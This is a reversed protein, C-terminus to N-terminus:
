LGRSNKRAEYRSNVEDLLSSYNDLENNNLKDLLVEINKKKKVHNFIRRVSATISVANFALVGATALEGNTMFTGAILAGTLIAQGVAIKRINAKELNISSTSMDILKIRAEENTLQTNEM